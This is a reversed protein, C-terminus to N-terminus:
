VRTICHGELIRHVPWQSPFWHAPLAKLKNTITRGFNTNTRCANYVQRIIPLPALPHRQVHGGGGAPCCRPRPPTEERISLVLDPARQCKVDAAVPEASRALLRFRWLSIQQEARATIQQCDRTLLVEAENNSVKCRLLRRKRNIYGMTKSSYPFHCKERVELLELTM